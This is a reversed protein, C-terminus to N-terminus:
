YNIFKSILSKSLSLEANAISKRGKKDGSNQKEKNKITFNLNKAMFKLDFVTKIPAFGTM